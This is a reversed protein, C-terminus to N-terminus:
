CYIARLLDFHMADGCRLEAAIAVAEADGFGKECADIETVAPNRLQCCVLALALARAPALALALATKSADSMPNGTVVLSRMSANASYGM